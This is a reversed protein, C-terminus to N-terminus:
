MFNGYSGSLATQKLIVGLEPAATRCFRSGGVYLTYLDSYQYTWSKRNDGMVPICNVSCIKMLILFWLVTVCLRSDHSHITNLNHFIGVKLEKNGSVTGTIGNEYVEELMNDANMPPHKMREVVELSLDDTGSIAVSDCLAPVM